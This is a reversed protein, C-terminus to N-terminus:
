ARFIKRASGATGLIAPVARRELALTVHEDALGREEAAERAAARVFDPLGAL